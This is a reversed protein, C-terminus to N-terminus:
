NLRSDWLILIKNFIGIKRNYKQRIAYWQQIILYLLLLLLLLFVTPALRDSTTERWESFFFLPFLSVGISNKRFSSFFIGFKHRFSLSWFDHFFNLWFWKRHFIKSVWFWWRKVDAIWEIKSNWKFLLVFLLEIFFIGFHIFAVFHSGSSLAKMSIYECNAVCNLM